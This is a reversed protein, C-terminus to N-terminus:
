EKDKGLQKLFNIESKEGGFFDRFLVYGVYTLSAGLVWWRYQSIFGVVNDIGGGFQNGVWRISVLSFITGAANLAAFRWFKMGIAGALACILSVPSLFVLVYTLSLLTAESEEILKGFSKSAKTVWKIATEGFWFGLLFYIPDTALHRFFGVLYYPLADIRYEDGNVLILNKNTPNLAVLLIPNRDVVQSLLIEGLLALLYAGVAAAILFRLPWGSPPNDRDFRQAFNM